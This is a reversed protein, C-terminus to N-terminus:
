MEGRVEGKGRQRRGIVERKLFLYYRKNKKVYGIWESGGIEKREYNCSKIVAEGKNFIVKKM